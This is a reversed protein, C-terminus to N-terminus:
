RLGRRPNIGRLIIIIILVVCTVGAVLMGTLKWDFSPGSPAQTPEMVPTPVPTLTPLPTLTPIATIVPQPTFTPLPAVPQIDINRQVSGLVPYMGSGQVPAFVRYVVVIQGGPMLAATIGIGDTWDYGLLTSEPTNWTEGNWQTSVMAVSGSDTKELSFLILAGKDDTVLGFHPSVEQLGSVRKAESWTKGSDLSWQQYLQNGKNSAKNWFLHLQDSSQILQPQSAASNVIEAPASWKEGGDTSNAYYIGMSTNEPPLGALAWVIHLMGKQGVVLRVDSFMPLSAQTIQDKDSATFVSIPSSWTNGQDSSHTIYIGRGENLPIGYAAYLEGKPGLALNPSIGAPFPAPLAVPHSWGSSTAADRVFAHSYLIEGTPSTSWVAHIMGGPDVVMAPNFVTQIGVSNDAVPSRLVAVSQSWSSSLNTYALSAGAGVNNSLADVQDLTFMPYLAHLKANNDVALAPLDAPITDAGSIAVAKKWARAQSPVIQAIDITSSTEWVDNNNDCGMAHLRTGESTFILCSLPITQNTKPEIFSLQLNYPDTWNSGDWIVLVPIISSDVSSITQAVLAVHGDSLIYADASKICGPLSELVREPTSWGAGGPIEPTDGTSGTWIVQYVSCSSSSQWQLMFKGSGDLFFRAQHPLSGQAVGGAQIAHPDSLTKGGDSSYIVYSQKDSPDDWTLYVQGKGDSFVQVYADEKTLNRFYPSTKILKAAEWNVGDHSHLYYLGITPPPTYGFKYPNLDDPKPNAQIYLIHITNSSDIYAQWTLTNKALMMGKFILSGSISKATWLDGGVNSWFLHIQHASDAILQWAEPRTVPLHNMYAFNSVMGIKVTKSWGKGPTFMKYQAWEFNDWWVAHRTGDSEVTVIPLSAAGSLSLNVPLEWPDSTSQSQAVAPSPHIGSVSYILILVLFAIVTQSIFSRKL